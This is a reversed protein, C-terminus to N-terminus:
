LVKTTTKIKTKNLIRDEGFISGIITNQICLIFTIYINGLQLIAESSTSLWFSLSGPRDYRVSLAAKLTTGRRPMAFYLKVHM